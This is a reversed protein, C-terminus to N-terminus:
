VPNPSKNRCYHCLVGILVIVVISIILGEVTALSILFIILKSSNVILM